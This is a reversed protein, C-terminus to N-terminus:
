SSGNCTLGVTDAYHIGLEITAFMDETVDQLARSLATEASKPDHPVISATCGGSATVSQLTYHVYFTPDYQQLTFEAVPVNPIKRRHTAVIRGDEVAIGTPRPRPLSVKEDGESVYLDGEFGEPWVELDFGRLQRLEGRTLRADGDPDLGMDEFILLTFFDDYRWTVDVAVVEGRANVELALSTDVFVHPHAGAM